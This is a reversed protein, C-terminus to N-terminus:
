KHERHKRANKTLAIMGLVGLSTDAAGEVIERSGDPLKIGTEADTETGTIADSEASVGEEPEPKDLTGSEATWGSDIM